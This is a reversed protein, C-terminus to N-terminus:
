KVDKGWLIKASDKATDLFKGKMDNSLAKDCARSINGGYKYDKELQTAARATEDGLKTNGNKYHGDADSRMEAQGEKHADHRLIGTVTDYVVLIPLASVSRLLSKVATWSHSLYKLYFTHGVLRICKEKTVSNNFLFVLLINLLVSFLYTFLCFSSFSSKPGFVGFLMMLYYLVILPTRTLLHIYLVIAQLTKPLLKNMLPIIKKNKSRNKYFFDKNTGKKEKCPM